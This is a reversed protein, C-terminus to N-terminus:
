QEVQDYYPELDWYSIPWDASVGDRSRREFDEPWLRLSVGGFHITGRGVGRGDRPHSMELPESGDFRRRDDWDFKGHMEVEDQRLDADTFLWDGAELVVVRWGAEALEKRAGVRRRPLRRHM